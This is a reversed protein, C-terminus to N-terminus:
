DFTGAFGRGESVVSFHLKGPPPWKEPSSLSRHGFTEGSRVGGDQEARCCRGRPRYPKSFFVGREPINADAFAVQGSVLIIEIPPWRDRVM